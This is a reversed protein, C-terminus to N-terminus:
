LNQPVEEQLSEDVTVVQQVPCRKLVKAILDANPSRLAYVAFIPYSIVSAGEVCFVRGDILEQEVSALPLYASGGMELLYSIAMKATGLRTRPERIDPFLRRHRLNHALGWDVMLYHDGLAEPVSQGAESSVLVLELQAVEELNLVDLQAPELMFALDLVGDLLRRTLVEPTHSEAILAMDPYCGRLQYLWPQLAVDWLRLSGGVSLQQKAGGATVDQRAKRWNSIILNAHYQLRNGEPTLSIDRKHRVFLQTDLQNELLKIRASVAAQTLYLAEGARGFHRLRAVELFTRLLEIDM